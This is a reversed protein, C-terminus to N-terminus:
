KHLRSFYYDFFKFAPDIVYEDRLCDVIDCSIYAYNNLLPDNFCCESHDTQYGLAMDDFLQAMTRVTVKRESSSNLYKNILPKVFFRRLGTYSVFKIAGPEGSDFTRFHCGNLLRGCNWERFTGCSKGPVVHKRTTVCLAYVTSWCFHSKINKARAYGFREIFAERYFNSDLKLSILVGLPLRDAIKYFIELPLTVGEQRDPENPEVVLPPTIDVPDYWSSGSSM